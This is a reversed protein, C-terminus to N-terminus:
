KKALQDLRHKADSIEPFSSLNPNKLMESYTNIAEPIKGLKEFVEGSKLYAKAQVAPYKQYAVFVRQYYANAEALKGQEMQIEGLSLVSVATAEGRWARNSAVQEFFPKAEDLRKLALLTQAQGLTIDKLKSAALGKDLAKSFYKLAKTYDQKGYAIQGIGNYGYDVMPSNGYEDILYNYFPVAQDPQGNQLLCDGVQGLLIPSLDEPKFDRAVGLLIQAEIDPKRQMRALEAKAYLLRARATTQSDLDPITLIAELDKAPDTTPPPTASSSALSASPAATVGANASGTAPSAPQSAATATTDPPKSATPTLHRHAYLQALQTIIEDVAERSPDNLYQKATAAMYQKAEDVKGLKIDARGIWSIASVVTPHDPNAAVFDQFMQAIEPWAAQKQLLKAAAFISYNLVEPTQAAKYSLTYYKIADNDKDESAYCDGMLSLVEALPGANAHKKQWAECDAITEDYKKDAFKIVALRYEADAVYSGAPYKQLYAHFAQDADDAKGGFLLALASRYTAQELFAGQPFDTEYKKYAAIAEDFKQQRLKIDGLILEIQAKKPNDPQNKLSDEFYATAKDYDQADFALAGRIFGVSDAYKGKPFQTLYNQCLGIARDTQKLKDFAVISGYLAPEFEACHPYRRMIERYVVASEWLRGDTSYARGIRLFLPPLVPPLKQYQALIDQDKAVQADIDKNDVQLQESNLPDAQIRTMNLAHQKHLDDIQQKQLTVIQENDRVRRYCNLADDVKNKSLFLDGLRVALANFESVDQVHMINEDLEQLVTVAKDEDKTELYLAFLKTDVKALLDSSLGPLTKEKELIAIADPVKKAKKDAEVLLMLAKVHYDSSALLSTCVTICDDMHDSFYDAQALSYLVQDLRAAKPFLQRYKNFTSIANPWDKANFYSAGLMFFVPELWQQNPAAIPLTPTNKWM